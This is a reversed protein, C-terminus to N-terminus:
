GEMVRLMLGDRARVTLFAVPVPDAGEVTEFRFRRLLLALLLPGEMMAFGAGPCVRAGASFPIFAQRQCMRWKGDALAGSRVRRSQGLAAHAPASALALDGGARGEARCPRSVGGGADGGAGDDAGPSLAAAGRSVRGAIVGLRSMDGPGPCKPLGAVEEAVRDQWEPYRALLYLTWSLASASTEHGALFFIAVQDVM